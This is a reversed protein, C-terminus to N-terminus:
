VVPRAASCAGGCWLSGGRGDVKGHDPVGVDALGRQQARQQAIHREALDRMPGAGRPMDFARGQAHAALDMQNQMVRRAHFVADTQTLIELPQRLRRGFRREHRAMLVVRPKRRVPRGAAQSRGTQLRREGARLAEVARVRNGSEQARGLRGIAVLLLGLHQALHQLGIRSQVHDIDAIRHQGLYRSSSATSAM